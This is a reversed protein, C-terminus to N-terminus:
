SLNDFQMDCLSRSRRHTKGANRVDSKLRPLLSILSPASNSRKHAMHPNKSAITVLRSSLDTRSAQLYDRFLNIPNQAHKYHFAYLLNDGM